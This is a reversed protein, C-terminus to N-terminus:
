GPAPTQSTSGGTPEPFPTDSTATLPSCGRECGWSDVLGNQTHTHIGAHTDPVSGRYTSPTLLLLLDLPVVLLALLLPVSGLRRLLASDACLTPCRYFGSTKQAVRPREFGEVWLLFPTVRVGFYRGPFGSHFEILLGSSGPHAAGLGKGQALCTCTRTRAPTCTCACLANM